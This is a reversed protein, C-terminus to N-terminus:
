VGGAETVSVLYVGRGQRQEQQQLLDAQVVVQEAHRQRLRRERQRDRDDDQAREHAGDAIIVEYRLTLGAAAPVPVVSAFFPAPCV